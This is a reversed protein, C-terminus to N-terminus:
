NRHRALTLAAKHATSFTGDIADTHEMLEDLEEPSPNKKLADYIEKASM